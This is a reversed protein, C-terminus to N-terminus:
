SIKICIIRYASYFSEWWWKSHHTSSQYHTRTGQPMSPATEDPISIDSYLERWEHLASVSSGSSVLHKLGVSFNLEKGRGRALLSVDINGLGNFEAIHLSWLTLASGDVGTNCAPWYQFKWDNRSHKSGVKSVPLVIHM